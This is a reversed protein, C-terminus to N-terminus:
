IQTKQLQFDRQSKSALIKAHPDPVPPAVKQITKEPHIRLHTELIKFAYEGQLTM